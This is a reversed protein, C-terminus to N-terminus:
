QWSIKYEQTDLPSIIYIKAGCDPCIVYNKQEQGNTSNYTLYCEINIDGMDFEFECGCNCTVVRNVKGHKIIKM